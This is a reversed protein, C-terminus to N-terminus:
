LHNPCIMKLIPNKGATEHYHYGLPLNNYINEILKALMQLTTAKYRKTLM